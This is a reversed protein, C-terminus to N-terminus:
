GINTSILTIKQDIGERYGQYARKQETYDTSPLHEFVDLYLDDILRINSRMKEISLRLMEVDQQDLKESIWSKRDSSISPFTASGFTSIMARIDDCIFQASQLLQKNPDIESNKLSDRFSRIAELYSELELNINTSILLFSCDTEFKFLAFRKIQDHHVFYNISYKKIRTQVAVFRRRYNEDSFFESKPTSSQHKKLILQMYARSCMLNFFWSFHEIQRATEPNKSVRASELAGNDKYVAKLEKLLLLPSESILEITRFSLPFLVNPEMEIQRAIFEECVFVIADQYGRDEALDPREYFVWFLFRFYESFLEDVKGQSANKLDNTLSKEVLPFFSSLYWSGSDKKKKCYSDLLTHLVKFGSFSNQRPLLSCLEARLRTKVDEAFLSNDEEESLCNCCFDQWFTAILNALKLPEATKEELCKHFLQVSFRVLDKHWQLIRTLSAGKEKNIKALVFRFSLMAKWSHFVVGFGIDLQEGESIASLKFDACESLFRELEASIKKTYQKIYATQPNDRLGDIQLLFFLGSMLTAPLFRNYDSKSGGVNQTVTPERLKVFCLDIVSSVLSCIFNPNQRLPTILSNTQGATKPLCDKVLIVIMVALPRDLIAPNHKAFLLFNNLNKLFHRTEFWEPPIQKPSLTEFIRILRSQFHFLAGEKKEAEDRSRQQVIKFLLCFTAVVLDCKQVFIMSVPLSSESLNRNYVGLLDEIAAIKHDPWEKEGEMQSYIFDAFEGRSFKQFLEIEQPTLDHDNDTKVQSHGKLTQKRICVSDFLIKILLSPSFADFHMYVVKEIWDSFVRTQEPSPSGYLSTLVKETVISCPRVLSPHEVFYGSPIKGVITNVAELFVAADKIETRALSLAVIEAYTLAEHKAALSIVQKDEPGPIPLSEKYCFIVLAAAAKAGIATQVDLSVLYDDLITKQKPLKKKLSENLIIYANLSALLSTIGATKVPKKERQKFPDLFLRLSDIEEELKKPFAAGALCKIIRKEIESFHEELADVVFNPLDKDKYYTLAADLFDDYSKGKPPREQKQEQNKRTTFYQIVVKQKDLGSNAPTSVFLDFLAFFNKYEIKCAQRALANSDFLGYYAFQASGKKKHEKILFDLLDPPAIKSLSEKHLSLLVLTKEKNRSWLFAARKKLLEGSFEELDFKDLEREALAVIQKEPSVQLRTWFAIRNRRDDFTWQQSPAATSQAVAESSKKEPVLFLESIADSRNVAKPSQGGKNPSWFRKWLSVLDCIAQWDKADISAKRKRFLSAVSESMFLLNAGEEEKHLVENIKPFFNCYLSLDSSRELLVSWLKLVRKKQELALDGKMSKELGKYLIHFFHNQSYSQDNLLLLVDCLQDVDEEPDNMFDLFCSARMEAMSTKELFSLFQVYEPHGKCQQLSESYKIQLVGKVEDDDDAWRKGEMATLEPSDFAFLFKCLCLLSRDNAGSVGVAEQLLAKAFSSSRIAKFSQEVFADQPTQLKQSPRPQTIAPLTLDIPVTQALQTCQNPVTTQWVWLSLFNCFFEKRKEPPVLPAFSRIVFDEFCLGREKSCAYQYGLSIEFFLRSIMESPAYPVSGAGLALIWKAFLYFHKKPDDVFLTEFYNAHPFAVVKTKEVNECVQFPSTAANVSAVSPTTKNSFDLVFSSCSGPLFDVALFDATLLNPPLKPSLDVAVTRGGFNLRCHVYTSSSNQPIDKACCYRKGDVAFLREEISFLSRVLSLAVTIDEPRPELSCILYCSIALVATQTYECPYEKKLDTLFHDLASCGVDNAIDFHRCLLSVFDDRAEKAPQEFVVLAQVDSEAHLDPSVTDRRLNEVCPGYVLCHNFSALFDNCRSNYRSQSGDPFFLNRSEWFKKFRHEDLQIQPASTIVEKFGASSESSSTAASAAPPAPLAGDLRRVANDGLAAGLVVATDFTM